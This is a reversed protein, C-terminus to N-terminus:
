VSNDSTSIDAHATASGAHLYQRVVEVLAGEGDGVPAAEYTQFHGQMKTIAAAIASDSIATEIAAEIDTISDNDKDGMIGVRHHAVRRANGNQDVFGTSYAVTPVGAVIAESLSKVGGHTVFCDANALIEIQPAWDLILVNSPISGLDNRIKSETGADTNGAGLSLVLNWDPRHEFVEIVRRLFTTDASWVTGLSCYVIPRTTGTRDGERELKMEQWRADAEPPLEREVRDAGVMPGVYIMNDHPKHPLDMERATFSILPVDTYVHPRLWQSRDTISKLDVGASDALPKLDVLSVTDSRVPSVMAALGGLGFRNRLQWYCTGLRIWSWSAFVKARHALGRPSALTSSLPPIDASRFVSFFNTTALTPIGLPRTTIMAAHTEANIILLDPSLSKVVEALENSALSEARLRRRRGVWAALGAPNALSPRPDASALDAFREDDNIVAVAMNEAELREALNTTCVFTVTFGAAQLRRAAGISTNLLSPLRNVIFAVHPM